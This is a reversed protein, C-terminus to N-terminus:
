FNIHTLWMLCTQPAKGKTESEVMRKIQTVKTEWDAKSRLLDINM